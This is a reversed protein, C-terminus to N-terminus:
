SGTSFVPDQRGTEPHRDDFRTWAEMVDIVACREACGGCSGRFPSPQAAGDLAPASAHLAFRV